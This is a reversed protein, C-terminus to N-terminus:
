EIAFRITYSATEGRRAQARPQFVEIRYEGSAPLPGTWSQLEIAGAMAYEEGPAIVNFYADNSDSLTVHMTQGARAGLLYNVTDYGKLSGSVTSASTGRAFHVTHRNADPDAALVPAAPLLALALAFGPLCRLRLANM